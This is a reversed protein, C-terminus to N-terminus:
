PNETDLLLRSVAEGRVLDCDLIEQLDAENAYTYWRGEPYIVLAPGEQCRGLCGSQSIRLKGPGILGMNKAHGRLFDLAADGTHNDGCSKRNPDNRQNCCVFLHRKFYSM